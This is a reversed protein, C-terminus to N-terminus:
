RNIIVPNNVTRASVTATTTTTTTAAAAAAAATTTTTTTTTTTITATTTYVTKDLRVRLMYVWSNNTTDNFHNDVISLSNGNAGITPPDFLGPPPAPGVWSFGPEQSPDDMPLFQGLTLNNILHWTITTPLPNHDVQNGGGHDHVDLRPPFYNKNLTVNLNNAPM